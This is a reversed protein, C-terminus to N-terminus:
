KNKERQFLLECCELKVSLQPGGLEIRDSIRYHMGKGHRKALVLGEDRLIKLHHSVLSQSLGTAQTMEWVHKPGQMLIELLSLRVSDALVKLKEVCESSQALERKVRGRGALKESVLAEM